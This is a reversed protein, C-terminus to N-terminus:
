MPVLAVRGLANGYGLTPRDLFPHVLWCPFRNTLVNQNIFALLDRIGTAVPDLIGATDTFRDANIPVSGLFDAFINGLWTHQRKTKRQCKRLFKTSISM